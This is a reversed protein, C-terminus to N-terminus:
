LEEKVAGDGWAGLESPEVVLGRAADADELRAEVVAAAEEGSEGGAMGGRRTDGERAEAARVSQIRANEEELAAKVAPWRTRVVASHRRLFLLLPRVALKGRYVRHARPVGPGPPAGTLLALVPASVYRDVFPFAAPDFANATTDLTAILLADPTAPALLSAM